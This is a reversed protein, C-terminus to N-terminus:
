TEALRPPWKAAGAAGREECFFQAIAKARQASVRIAVCCHGFEFSVFLSVRCHKLGPVCTNKLTPFSPCLPARLILKSLIECKSARIVVVVDALLLIPLLTPRSAFLDMGNADFLEKLFAIFGEDAIFALQLIASSKPVRLIDPNFSVFDPFDFDISRIMQLLRRRQRM